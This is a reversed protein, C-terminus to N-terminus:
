QQPQGMFPCPYGNLFLPLLWILNGPVLLLCTSSNPDSANGPHQSSICFCKSSHDLNCFTLLSGFMFLQAELMLPACISLPVTGELYGKQSSNHPPQNPNNVHLFKSDGPDVERHTHPHEFLAKLLAEVPFPVM